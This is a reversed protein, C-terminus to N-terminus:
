GELELLMVFELSDFRLPNKSFKLWVHGTLGLQVKNNGQIWIRHPKLM